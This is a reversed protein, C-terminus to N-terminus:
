ANIILLAIPINKQRFSKLTSHAYTYTTM